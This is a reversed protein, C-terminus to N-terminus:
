RGRSSGATAGGTLQLYADELSPRAVSLGDLEAGLGVAWRTLELLAQTPVETRMIIEGDHHEPEAWPGAPFEVGSLAPPLRFSIVAGGVDRGGLGEPTAEEILRGHSMVGIRDALYQVEDLYHSTLLIATGLSRLEAIMQWADRRANPDFGTTPEDLFLLDPNGVLALALDLRRLQGGSLTRVRARYKSTLGVLDIVQAAARPRAYFSAYLRIVERVTLEADMGGSQLVIGIRERFRRGGTAPDFGLVRILGDTRGRHGELIEVITTKGAGNPGLLAYIEARRVQFSVNDVARLGGYTKCLGAVEIAPAQGDM